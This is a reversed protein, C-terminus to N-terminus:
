TDLLFRAARLRNFWHTIPVRDHPVSESGDVSVNSVGSANGQLRRSRPATGGNGFHIFLQKSPNARAWDVWLTEDGTSYLCDFGWFQRVNPLYKQPTLAIRRMRIGGGSHCAIIINGLSPPDTMAKFPGYTRLAALVQDLYWALGGPNELKDAESLPGLTPAVLIVNKKSANVGERFAWYPYRTAFWYTDISLNPTAKHHGQLYLILDVQSPTRYDKPVFIGTMPQAPKEGGHTITVYHTEKAVMSESYLLPPTATSPPTTELYMENYPLEVQRAPTASPLNLSLVVRRNRARGVATAGPAVPQSAGQSHTVFRIARAVGPRVKDMARGLAARVARARRLGLAQNYSAAGRSDAHGVLYVVRVPKDTGASAVVRRAIRDILGHHYATLSSSDFQFRDLGMPAASAAPVDAAVRTFLQDLVQNLRNQDKLEEATAGSFEQLGQMTPRDLNGTVAIPRGLVLTLAEQVFHPTTTSRGMARTNGGRLNTDCHFHDRHDPRHYDIVTNFSLRLCANLRRLLVRQPGGPPTWNHVITERLASAPGGVQPWRVGAVDLADGFSHNSLNDSNTVCRCYLSGLTLIAEIPMAFRSMNNVFNNLADRVAPIFKEVSPARRRTVIKLRTTPDTGTSVVFEFPVGAADRLCLLDPIAPCTQTGPHICRDRAIQAPAPCPGVPPASAAPQRPAEYVPELELEEEPDGTSGYGFLGGEPGYKLNTLENEVDARIV